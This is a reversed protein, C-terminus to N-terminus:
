HRWLLGGSQQDGRVFAGAGVADSRANVSCGCLLIESEAAEWKGVLVDSNEPNPIVDRPGIDTGDRGPREPQPIDGTQGKATAATVVGTAPTDPLSRRSIIM